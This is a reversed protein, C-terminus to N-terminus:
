RPSSACSSRPITRALCCGTPVARSLLDRVRQGRESRVPINQMNPNTSSLRGTAAVAQNFTTHIRGTRPNVLEPLADVYTSKLKGVQRWELL